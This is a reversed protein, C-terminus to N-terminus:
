SMYLRSYLIEHNMGAIDFATGSIGLDEMSLKEAITVCEEIKNLSQNLIKQGAIQSLPVLKVANTVIASLQSYSYIAAAEKVPLGIEKAYLGVAIGHVGYCNKAQIEMDYKQIGPYEKIQNWIKIFRSCLKTCGNRIEQPMKLVFTLHDLQRIYEMDDGHKYALMMTALDNYPFIEMFNSIYEELDKESSLIGKEVFTELGNSLTFAGIPFLSDSIQIMQLIEALKM